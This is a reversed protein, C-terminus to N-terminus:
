NIIISSNYLTSAAAWAELFNSFQGKSGGSDALSTVDPQVELASRVESAEKTIRLDNHPVSLSPQEWLRTCWLARPVPSCLIPTSLTYLLSNFPEELISPKHVLETHRNTNRSRSPYQVTSWRLSYVWLIHEMCCWTTPLTFNAALTVPVSPILIM